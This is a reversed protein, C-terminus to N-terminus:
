PEFQYLVFTDGPGHPTAYVRRAPSGAADLWPHPPYLSGEYLIFYAMPSKPAVQRLGRRAVELEPPDYITFPVAALRADAREALMLGYAGPRMFRHTVVVCSVNHRDAYNRLFHRVEALGAGSWPGTFYQVIESSPAPASAPDTGVRLAVHGWRGVVVLAVLALGIQSAKKLGAVTGAALSLFLVLPVYDPLAYRAFPRNYFLAAVAISIAAGALAAFALRDRARVALCAAAFLLAALAWGGYGAHWDLWMGLRATAASWYTEAEFSPLSEFRTSGAGLQLLNKGLSLLPVVAGVGIAALQWNFIPRHARWQLGLYFLGLWPLALVASIKCLTALGFAIGAGFSWWPIGASRAQSGSTMLATAVALLAAVFPDQLALREHFVTFPMIAWIAMGCVAALRGSLRILTWGLAGVTVLGAAATMGRAIALAHRPAWGAPAYLWALVPRGQGLPDIVARVRDDLATLINGSEDVFAEPTGIFRLRLWAAVLIPLAAWLWFLTRAQATATAPMPAMCDGAGAM